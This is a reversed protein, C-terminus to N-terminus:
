EKGALEELLEKVQSEAGNDVVIVWQVPHTQRVVQELSHRLLDVRKHTVIVAATSGSSHLPQPTFTM